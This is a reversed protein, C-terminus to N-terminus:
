GGPARPWRPARRDACPLRCRRQALEGCRHTAWPRGRWRGGPWTGRRRRVPWRREARAVPVGPRGTRGLSRKSTSGASTSAMRAWTRATTRGVTPETVPDPRTRGRRRKVLPEPAAPASQWVACRSTRPTRARRIHPGGPRRASPRVRGRPPTSAWAPRVRQAALDAPGGHDRGPHWRAAVDAVHRDEAVVRGLEVGAARRDFRAASPRRNGGSRDGVAAVQRRDAVVPRHDVEGAAMRGGLLGGGHDFGEVGRETAAAPPPISSCGPTCYRWMRTAGASQASASQVAGWSRESRGTTHGVPGAASFSRATISALRSM